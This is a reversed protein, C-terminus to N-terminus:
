MTPVSIDRHQTWAKQYERAQLLLDKYVTPASTATVFLDNADVGLGERLDVKGKNGFSEIIKGTKADIARSISGATYFLREDDQVMPGTLLM